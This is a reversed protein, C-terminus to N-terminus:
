LTCFRPNEQVRREWLSQLIERTFIQTETGNRSFSKCVNKGSLLINKM